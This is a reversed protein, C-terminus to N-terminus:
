WPQSHTIHISVRLSPTVLPFFCLVRFVSPATTHNTNAIDEPLLEYAPV